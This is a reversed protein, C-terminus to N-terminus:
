VGRSSHSRTRQRDLEVKLEKVRIGGKLIADGVVFAPTGTVDLEDALTQMQKLYDIVHPDRMDAQLKETDLGIDVAMAFISDTDLRIDATMLANHYAQFLGQRHAGIAARAALISYSGFVPLQAYIIRIDIETERMQELEPYSAKCPVCQYDYFEIITVQSGADGSVPTLSSDLLSANKALISKRWLASAQQQRASRASSIARAIEPDDFVLEPHELLYQRVKKNTIGESLTNARDTDSCATIALGLALAFVTQAIRGLHKAVRKGATKDRAVRM